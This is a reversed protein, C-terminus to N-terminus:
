QVTEGEPVTGTHIAHVHAATTAINNLMGQLMYMDEACEGLAIGIALSVSTMNQGEFVDHLRKSLDTAQEAFDAKM